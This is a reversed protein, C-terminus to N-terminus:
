PAGAEAVMAEDNALSAAAHDVVTAAQTDVGVLVSTADLEGAQLAVDSALLEDAGLAVSNDDEALAATDIAAAADAAIQEDNAVNLQAQEGTIFDALQHALASQALANALEDFRGRTQALMQANAVNADAVAILIAARNQAIQLDNRANVNGQDIAANALAMAIDNLANGNAVNNLQAQRMAESRLVAIMRANAADQQGQAQLDAVAQQADAFQAEGNALEDQAHQPTTRAFAVLPALAVLLSACCAIVRLRNM